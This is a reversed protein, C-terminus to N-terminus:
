EAFGPAAPVTIAVLWLDKFATIRHKQGPEIEVVRGSVLPHLIESPSDDDIITCTGSGAYCIIVEREDLVHPPFTVGAPIILRVVAVRKDGSFLPWVRVPGLEKDFQYVFSGEDFLRDLEELRVITEHGVM